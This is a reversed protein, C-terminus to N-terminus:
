KGRREDIKRMYYDDRAMEYARDEAMDKAYEDADSQCSPCLDGEEKVFELCRKGECLPPGQEEKERAVAEAMAEDWAKAFEADSITTM